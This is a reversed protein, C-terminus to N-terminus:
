ERTTLSYSAFARQAALVAKDVDAQSGLAIEYMVEETAPNVIPHLKKVVPEQWAGDIYFMHRHDM